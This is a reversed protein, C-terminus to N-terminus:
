MLSIYIHYYDSESKEIDIEAKKDDSLEIIGNEYKNYYENTLTDLLKKFEEETLESLLYRGDFRPFMRADFSNDITESIIHEYIENIIFSYLENKSDFSYNSYSNIIFEGDDENEIIEDNTNFSLYYDKLLKRYAFDNLKCEKEEEKGYNNYYNLASELGKGDGWDSFYHGWCYNGEDGETHVSYELEGGKRWLLLVLKLNEEANAQPHKKEKLKAILEM